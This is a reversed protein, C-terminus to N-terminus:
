GHCAEVLAVETTASNRPRLNERILREVEGSPILLKSGLKVSDVRGTYADQRASWVSRGTLRAFEAVPILAPQVNSTHRAKAM